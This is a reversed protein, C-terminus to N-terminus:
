WMKIELSIERALTQRHCEIRKLTRCDIEKNETEKSQREEEEWKKFCHLEWSNSWLCCEGLMHVVCKGKSCSHWMEWLGKHNLTTLYQTRVLPTHLFFIYSVQLVPWKFKGYTEESMQWGPILFDTPVKSYKPSESAVPCFSAPDRIGTHVLACGGGWGVGVSKSSQTFFLGKNLWNM